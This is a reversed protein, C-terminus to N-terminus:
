APTLDSAKLGGLASVLAKHSDSLEKSAALNKAGAEQAAKNAIFQQTPIGIIGGVGEPDMKAGIGALLSLFNPNSFLQSMSAGFGTAPGTPADSEPIINLAM